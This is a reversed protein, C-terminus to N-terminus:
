WFFVTNEGWRLSANPECGFRNVELLIAGSGRITASGDRQRGRWLQRKFQWESDLYRRRKAGQRIGGCVSSRAKGRVDDGPERNIGANEHDLILYGARYVLVLIGICCLM